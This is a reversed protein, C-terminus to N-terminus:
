DVDEISYVPTIFSDIYDGNSIGHGLLFGMMREEM